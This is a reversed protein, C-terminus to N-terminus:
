ILYFWVRNIRLVNLKVTTTIYYDYGDERQDVYM